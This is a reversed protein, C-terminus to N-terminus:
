DVSIQGMGRINITKCNLSPCTTGERKIIISATTSSPEIRMFGDPISFVINLGQGKTESSLSNIEIGSEILVEGGIEIDMDSPQYTNNGNVDGFLQYYEKNKDFFIGYSYPVEQNEYKTGNLAMDQAKRIDQIINQAVRQLLYQKENKRWNVILITSILGIISIVVLMELLSFGKQRKDEKKM